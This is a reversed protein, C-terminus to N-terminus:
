TQPGSEQSIVRCHPQTSLYGCENEKDTIIYHVGAGPRSSQPIIPNYLRPSSLCHQQYRESVRFGVVGTCLPPESFLCRNQGKCSTLMKPGPFCRSECQSLLGSLQSSLWSFVTEWGCGPCHSHIDQKEKHKSDLTM